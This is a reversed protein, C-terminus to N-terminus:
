LRSQVTDLPSTSDKEAKEVETLSMGDVTEAWPRLQREVAVVGWFTGSKFVFSSSGHNWLVVSLKTKYLSDFAFPELVVRREMAVDLHGCVKTLTHKPLFLQCGRPITASQGVQIEGDVSAYIAYETEEYRTQIATCKTTSATSATRENSPKEPWTGRRVNGNRGMGTPFINCIRSISVGWIRAWIWSISYSIIRAAFLIHAGMDQIHLSIAM